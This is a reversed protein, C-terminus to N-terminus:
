SGADEAKYHAKTFLADPTDFYKGRRGDGDWTSDINIWRGSVYAQNWAHLGFLTEGSMVKAPIGSARLLAAMLYAFEICIGSKKKLTLSASAPESNVDDLSLGRGTTEALEDYAYSIHSVVWDHLARAKQNETKSDKTIEKALAIIGPDDSQVRNSPLISPDIQSQFNVEVDQYKTYPVGNYQTSTRNGAFILRYIGPGNHLYIRSVWKGEGSNPVFVWSRNKGDKSVQVVSVLSEEPYVGGVVVSDQKIELVTLYDQAWASTWLSSFLIVLFIKNKM